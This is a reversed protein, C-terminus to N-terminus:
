FNNKKLFSITEFNCDQIDKYKDYFYKLDDITDIDRWYSLVDTKINESNLKNMTEKFVSNTSWNIEEFVKSSYYNKKFGLLYYGGDYTPGIVSDNENLSIFAKKFISESLDPSDSGIIIVKEFDQNFAFDFCSKMRIGLNEGQQPYFNYNKGLWNKFKEIYNEPYYCVIKHYETKNLTFLLDKVFMKYLNVTFKESLKSSLRSKVKGKEPYKVFFLICYNNNKLQVMM